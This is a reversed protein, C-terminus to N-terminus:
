SYSRDKKDNAQKAMAKRVQEDIQKQTQTAHEKSTFNPNSINVNVTNNTGIRSPIPAMKTSQIPARKAQTAAIKGPAQKTQATAKNAPTIGFFQGIASGINNVLDAFPKWRNYLLAGAMLLVGAVRVIPNNLLASNLALNAAVLGWTALTSLIVGVKLVGFGFALTSVAIGLTGIVVALGVVVSVGGALNVLLSKNEDSLGKTWQMLVSVKGAAREFAPAFAGGVRASLIGIQQTLLELGKGKQMAKAMKETTETGNEMAKDLDKMSKELDGTKDIMATVMKVAEDSGFAKKIKDMTEVKSIDGYKDKIKQLIKSMPLLKGQTDVFTLGLEKQAKGAGNLFARYSTASESASNFAGKSTGIIALQESLSVGMSTAVAGLSSLGNSLDSGDTRFAMVAQSIAASFKEGFEIDSGFQKRYIGHGLAFLKTMEATTSKTATGTLAAMRTFEGVATDSLSSIGSKIDYSASIFEPVTTGAWQMSFKEASATIAEIGKAGIGLSEIEGQSRAVEEYSKYMGMIASTASAGFAYSATAMGALKAKTMEANKGINGIQDSVKGFTAGALNSATIAIGLTLIKDM